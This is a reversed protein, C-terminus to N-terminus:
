GESLEPQALKSRRGFLWIGACVAISIGSVLEGAHFAPDEYVLKVRHNGAPSEVAQFAYNAPLLRTPHGDLYARWCHYYTQSVVLMFAQAAEAEVEITDASFRVIKLRCDVPNTASILTKAEAPLVVFTRPDFGPEFLSLLANTGDLYVPKQGGTM